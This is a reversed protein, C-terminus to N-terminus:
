VDDDRRVAAADLNQRVLNAAARLNTATKSLDLSVTEIAQMLIVDNTKERSWEYLILIAWVPIQTIGGRWNGVTSEGTATRAAFIRGFRYTGFALEGLENFLNLRSEPSQDAIEDATLIKM